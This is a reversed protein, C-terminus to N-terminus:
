VSYITPLTLHTYSVANVKRAAGAEINTLQASVEELLSLRYQEENKRAPVNERPRECSANRSLSRSVSGSRVVEAFSTKGPIWLPSKSRKFTEQPLSALKKTFTTLRSGRRQQKPTDDSDTVLIPPTIVGPEALDVDESVFVNPFRINSSFASQAFEKYTCEDISEVRQLKIKIKHNPDIASILKALYRIRQQSIKM